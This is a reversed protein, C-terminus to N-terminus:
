NKVLKYGYFDLDLIDIAIIEVDNLEEKLQALAETKNEALYTMCDNENGDSYLITFINM